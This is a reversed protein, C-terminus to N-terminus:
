AKSCICSLHGIPARRVMCMSGMCMQMMMMNGLLKMM